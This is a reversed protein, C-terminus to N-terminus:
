GSSSAMMKAYRRQIEESTLEEKRTHFSWRHGFPDRLWATRDGYFEDATPREAEAGAATAREVLSDVDSVYVALSTSTGSLKKPSVCGIEPYEDAIMIVGGELEIEAHAIKGGEGLLRYRERAGFARVYFNIAAVGGDVILQPVVPQTVKSM